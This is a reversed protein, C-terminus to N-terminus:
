GQLRARRAQGQEFIRLSEQAVQDDVQGSRGSDRLGGDMIVYSGSMFAGDPGAMFNALGAIDAPQGARGVPTRQELSSRIAGGEEGALGAALPTDIVGPGIANITIHHPGLEQALGRVMMRVGAKTVSYSWIGAGTTEAALSAICIVRGGNGFEVMKRACAQVTLFVGTLNVDIQDQWDKLSMELVHGGRAIGANAVAIDLRGFEAACREVAAELQQPSAVNCKVVVSKAGLQGLIDATREAGEIDMDAICIKAGERAFREAIGRGIGSGAGTILAM